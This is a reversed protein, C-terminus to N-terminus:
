VSHLVTELFVRAEELPPALWMAEIAVACWPANASTRGRLKVADKETTLIFRAGLQAAHREIYHVVLDPYSFHDSYFFRGAIRCGLARATREFGDPAALGCALVVSQGDLDRPRVAEGSALLRIDTPVFEIQWVAIAPAIARLRTAARERQAPDFAKTIAAVQARRLATWPERLRGWPLLHNQSTPMSADILVIDLDRALAWHQFGDDMVLVDCGYEEVAIRASKSRNPGILIHAGELKETLLFPEDGVDRPRVRVKGEPDGQARVALRRESGKYGRTLIGVKRGMRQLLRAVVIVVPTKGTGGLSLNGICIVPVPPRYRRKLGLTYLSKHLQLGLWYLPVGAIRFPLLLM